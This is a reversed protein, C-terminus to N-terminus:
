DLKLEFVVKGGSSIETAGCKRMVALSAENDALVEGRLAFLGIAKALKCLALCLATGLGRGHYEPLLRFSLSATGDGLFAYLVGEGVFVNEGEPSLVTAALTVSERRDFEERVAAIFDVGRGNPIDDTLSYGFYRNLHRDTVLKEYQDAYSSAFEGLYIRGYEAEPIEDLLTCENEVILAFCEGEGGSVDQVDVHTRNGIAADLHEKPVDVYVERIAELVCYEGVTRYAKEIDASSTVEAAPWFYYGTEESFLRFLLCGHSISVYIETNSVFDEMGEFSLYFDLAERDIDSLDFAEELAEPSVFRIKEM